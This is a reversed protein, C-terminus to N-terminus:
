VAYERSFTLEGLKIEVRVAKRHVTRVDQGTDNGDDDHEWCRKCWAEHDLLVVTAEPHHAKIAAHIEEMRDFEEATARTAPKVQFDPDPGECQCVCDIDQKRLKQYRPLEELSAFAASRICDLIEEEPLLSLEHRKRQNDSGHEAVWADLQAKRRAAAAAEEAKKRAAAEENLRAREDQERFMARARETVEANHAECASEVEARKGAIRPDALVAAEAEHDYIDLAYNIDKRVEWFRLGGPLSRYDVNGHWEKVLKEVSAALYGAVGKELKERLGSAKKAKVEEAADLLLRISEMTGDAVRADGIDPGNLWFGPPDQTSPSKGSLGVLTKRHEESLAAVDIDVLKLGFESKGALVAMSRDVNIWARVKEM